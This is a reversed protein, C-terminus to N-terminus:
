PISKGDLSAVDGDLSSILLRALNQLKKWEDADDLIRAASQVGLGLQVFTLDNARCVNSDNNSENVCGTQLANIQAWGPTSAVLAGTAIVMAMRLIPPHSMSMKRFRSSFPM